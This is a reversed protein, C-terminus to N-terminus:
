GAVGVDIRMDGGDATLPLDWATVWGWLPADEGRHIAVADDIELRPDPAVRVPVSQAPRAANELMTRAAAQAQQANQLLSSSWERVVVGNDGNISMPGSTVSAVGQVDATEANGTSAVVVNFAGARSDARPAAILTGGGGDKLTVVPVPVDPLPARFVIQGWADVRLLAPWVDAIEQLNELRSKSWSMAASCPRDVLEPDFSVGMGAPAMRRAESALTGSPSSLSLLKDDRPRALLSEAKVTITGDEDDDWTKVQYTGVRTEWVEGTVVSEVITTVDLRQGYRALPHRADAGPRWDRVDGGPEGSAFRPVTLALEEIVEQSVKGTARGAIIPVSEALMQGGLWSTVRSRYRPSGALVEDPPGSRM